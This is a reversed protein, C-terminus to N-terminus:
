KKKKKAEWEAIYKEPNAKFEDRCGTCCVYYTKGKYSVPIKGLGGSVICEPGTNGDNAFPVNQNTLGVQYKRVFSTKGDAKTEYSYTIRNSHLLRIVIRQGEKTKTDIRDLTLKKDKLDGEFTISDGTKTELTLKYRDGGLGRLEGSHFYKGKDFKAQLWADDKEFQWQWTVMETWFGAEKEARSGNPVGTGKWPAVLFNFPQLAKRQDVKTPEGALGISSALLLIAVVASKMPGVEPAHGM